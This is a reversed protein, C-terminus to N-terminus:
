EPIYFFIHHLEIAYTVTTWANVLFHIFIFLFHILIQFFIVEPKKNM